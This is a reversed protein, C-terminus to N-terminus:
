DGMLVRVIREPRVGKVYDLKGEDSYKWTEICYDTTSTTAGIGALRPSVQVEILWGDTARSARRIVGQWGIVKLNSFSNCWDFTNKRDTPVPDGNAFAAAIQKQLTLDEGTAQLSPKIETGRYSLQEARVALMEAKLQESPWVLREGRKLEVKRATQPSLEAQQSGNSSNRGIVGACFAVITGLGAVTFALKRM